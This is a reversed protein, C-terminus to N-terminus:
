LRAPVFPLVQRHVLTFHRFERTGVWSPMEVDNVVDHNQRVGLALDNINQLFEPLYFFEPILEQLLFSQIAFDWIVLVILNFNTINLSENYLSEFSFRVKFDSASDRSALRWIAQISNFLRDAIDFSGDQYELALQTFPLLRVLYHAVVGSNSYHSGSCM